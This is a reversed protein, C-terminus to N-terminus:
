GRSSEEMAARFCGRVIMYDPDDERRTVGVAFGIEYMKMLLPHLRRSLRDLIVEENERAKIGTVLQARLYNAIASKAEDPGALPLEQQERISPLVEERLMHVDGRLERAIRHYGENEANKALKEVVAARDEVATITLSVHRRSDFEVPDPRVPRQEDALMSTQEPM